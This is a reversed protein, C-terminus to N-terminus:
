CHICDRDPGMWGGGGDCATLPTVEWMPFGPLLVLPCHSLRAPWPGGWVVLAMGKPPEESRPQQTLSLLPWSTASGPGPVVKGQCSGALLVARHCFPGLAAGIVGRPGLDGRNTRTQKCSGRHKANALVFSLGHCPCPNQLQFWFSPSPLVAWQAGHEAM